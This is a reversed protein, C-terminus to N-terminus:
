PTVPPPAFTDPPRMTLRAAFHYSPQGSAYPQWVFGGSSLARSVVVDHPGPDMEDPMKLVVSLVKAAMRRLEAQGPAGNPHGVVTFAVEWEAEWDGARLDSAVGDGVILHPWPAEHIGSVHTSTDGLLTAVKPHARLWDLVVVVPDVDAQEPVEPM